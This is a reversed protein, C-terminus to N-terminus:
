RHDIVKHRSGTCIFGPPLSGHAISTDRIYRRCLCCCVNLDVDTHELRQFPNGCRCLNLLIVHPLEEAVRFRIVRLLVQEDRLLSSKAQYYADGSLAKEPLPRGGSGGGNRGSGQRPDPPLGPIAEAARAWTDRRMLCLVVNILDSSTLVVQM